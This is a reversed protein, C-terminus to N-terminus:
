DKRNAHLDIFKGKFVVKVADQSTQDKANENDNWELYKLIKM